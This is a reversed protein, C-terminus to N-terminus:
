PHGERPGSVSQLCQLDGQSQARPQSTEIHMHQEPVREDHMNYCSGSLSYMMSHKNQMHHSHDSRIDSTWLRSTIMLMLLALGASHGAKHM